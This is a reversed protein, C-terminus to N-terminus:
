VGGNIQVRQVIERKMAIHKEVVSLMADLRQARDSNPEQERAHKISHTSQSLAQMTASADMIRGQPPQPPAPGSPAEPNVFADIRALMNGMMPAVEADVPTDERHATIARRLSQVHGPAHDDWPVQQRMPMNSDLKTSM